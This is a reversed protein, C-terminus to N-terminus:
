AAATLEWGTRGLMGRFVNPDMRERDLVVLFDTVKFATDIAPESLVQAGLKLYSQLLPPLCFSADAAPEGPECRLNPRAALRVEPHMQGVAELEADARRAVAPDISPISCCGFLFRMKNWDLYRALGRWLLLIVRGSRHAPAVCARGIEVGQEAIERPLASFDYEGESYFGGRTMAMAHTMLRYTGVVAGQERDIVMLHHCVADFEDEDRGLRYAEELGEGLELNFVEFRLRQVARLDELNAAFRLEYRGARLIGPPLAEGHLPYMARVEASKAVRRLEPSFSM